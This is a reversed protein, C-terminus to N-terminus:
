ALIKVLLLRIVRYKSFSKESFSRDHRIVRYKSFSKEPLSRNHRIVRYKSFNKESLSINHGIVRCMSFNKEFFSKNYEIVKCKSLKKKSLYRNQGLDSSRMSPSIESLILSISYSSEDISLFKRQLTVCNPSFLTEENVEFLPVNVDYLFLHLFAFANTKM